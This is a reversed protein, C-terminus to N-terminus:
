KSEGELERERAKLLAIVRGLDEAKVDRARVMQCVMAALDGEFLEDAFSAFDEVVSRQVESQGVAARYRNERGEVRRSM